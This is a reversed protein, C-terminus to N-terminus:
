CVNFQGFAKFPLITLSFHAEARDSVLGGPECSSRIAITVRLRLTESAYSDYDTAGRFNGELWVHGVWFRSSRCDGVMKFCPRLLARM